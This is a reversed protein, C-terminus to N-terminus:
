LFTLLLGHWPHAAKPWEGTMGLSYPNVTAVSLIEISCFLMPIDMAHWQGVPSIWVSQNGKRGHIPKKQIM